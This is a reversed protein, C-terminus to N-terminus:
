DEMVVRLEPKYKAFFKAKKKLYFREGMKTLFHM